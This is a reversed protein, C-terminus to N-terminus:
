NFYKRLKCLTYRLSYNLNFYIENDQKFLEQPMIQKLKKKKEKHEKTESDKTECLLHPWNHEM